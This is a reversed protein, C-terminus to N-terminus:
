VVTFTHFSRIVCDRACRTSRCLSLDPMPLPCSMPMINLFHWPTSYVGTNESPSHHSPPIDVAIVQVAYCCSESLVDQCGVVNRSSTLARNNGGVVVRSRRESALVPRAPCCLSSARYPM